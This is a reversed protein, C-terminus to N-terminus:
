ITGKYPAFYTTENIILFPMFSKYSLKMRSPLMQYFKSQNPFAFPQIHLLHSKKNNFAWSHGVRRFEFFALVFTFCVSIFDTIRQSTLSKLLKKCLYREFFLQRQVVSKGLRNEEFYKSTNNLFSSMFSTTVQSQSIFITLQYRLTPSTQQVSFQKWAPCVLHLALGARGVGRM